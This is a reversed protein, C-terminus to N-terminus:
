RKVQTTPQLLLALGSVQLDMTLQQGTTDHASLELSDFKMAMTNREMQYIFQSLTFLTGSAQIHCNLTMYNTSDNKWQPMVSTIEAGSSGAWTNLATLVQSEALATNNTLANARMDSWRSRLTAERKILGNGENVQNSYDKIQKSRSSWLKVLPGYIVSNGILLAVAVATLVILFQQRNEIKM